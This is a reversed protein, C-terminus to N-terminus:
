GLERVESQIQLAQNRLDLKLGQYITSGQLSARCLKAIRAQCYVSLYRCSEIRESAISKDKCM